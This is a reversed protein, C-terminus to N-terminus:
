YVACKMVFLCYRRYSNFDKAQSELYELDVAGVCIGCLLFRMLLGSKTPM